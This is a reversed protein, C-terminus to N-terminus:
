CKVTGVTAQAARAMDLKLPTNCIGNRTLGLDQSAETKGSLRLVSQGVAIWRGDGLSVSAALPLAEHADLDLDPFFASRWRPLSGRSQDIRFM